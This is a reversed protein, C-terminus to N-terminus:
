YVGCDCYCSCHQCKCHEKPEECENCEEVHVPVEIMENDAWPVDTIFYGIRNVLAYGSVIYTGGEDGDVYTWVHHSDQDAVFQVEDGYTEYMIGVGYENQFSANEDIHNAKPKYTEEWEEYSILRSTLASM